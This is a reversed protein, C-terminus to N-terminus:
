PNKTAATAVLWTSCQIAHVATQLGRDKTKGELSLLGNQDAEKDADPQSRERGFGCMLSLNVSM